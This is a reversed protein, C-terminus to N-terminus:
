VVRRSAKPNVRDEEAYNALEGTQLGAEPLMQPRDFSTEGKRLAGLVNSRLLSGFM